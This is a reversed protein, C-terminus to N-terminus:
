DEYVAVKELEETDVAVSKTSLDIKKIVSKLAPFMFNRDGNVVYVDAAGNQVVDKIRGLEVGDSVVELGILDAIYYRGDRPKPAADRPIRLKAGRLTEAANRDDIGALKIFVAEDTIRVRELRFEKGAAYLSSIGVFDDPADFYHAIKLEGKIGQPKLVRGILLM